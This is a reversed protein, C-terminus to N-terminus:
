NDFAFVLRVHDMNYETKEACLKKLRPLTEQLFESCFESYTNGDDGEQWLVPDSWPYTMLEALTVFSHSHFYGTDKGFWRAVPKSMDDPLGRPEAISGHPPRDRVGALVGFLAYNRDTYWEDLILKAGEKRVRDTINANFAPNYTHPWREAQTIKGEAPHWKKGDFWEVRLHIDCGM